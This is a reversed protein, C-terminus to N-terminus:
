RPTDAFPFAVVQHDDEYVVYGPRTTRLEVVPVGSSQVIETLRRLRSLHEAASTRLWSLPTDDARPHRSITLRRPQPLHKGFWDLLLSLEAHDPEGLANERRLEYAIQFVGSRHGYPEHRDSTVFRILVGREM